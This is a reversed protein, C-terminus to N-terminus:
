IDSLKSEPESECVQDTASLKGTYSHSAHGESGPWLRGVPSPRQDHSANINTVHSSRARAVSEYEDYTGLSLSCFFTSFTPRPRCCGLNSCPYMCERGSGLLLLRSQPNRHIVDVAANLVLQLVPSTAVLCSINFVVEREWSIYLRTSRRAM